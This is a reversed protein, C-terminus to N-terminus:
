NSALPDPPWRRVNSIIDAIARKEQLRCGVVICIYPALNSSLTKILIFRENGILFCQSFMEDVNRCNHYDVKSSSCQVLNLRNTMYYWEPELRIAVIDAM